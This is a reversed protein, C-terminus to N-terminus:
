PHEPAPQPALSDDADPPSFPDVESLPTPVVDDVDPTALGAPAGTDLARRWRETLLAVVFPVALAVFMVPGTDTARLALSVLGACVASALMLAARYIGVGWSARAPLSIVVIANSVPFLMATVCVFPAVAWLGLEGPMLVVATGLAVVTALLLVATRAGGIRDVGWGSVFKGGVSALRGAGVLGTVLALGTGRDVFHQPTLGIVVYHTTGAAVGTVLAMRYGPHRLYNRAERLLGDPRPGDAEVLHPTAAAFGLALAATVLFVARWLDIGVNSSFAAVALGLSYALGYTAIARGRSEIYMRGVMALGPGFFLGVGLGSLAQGVFLLHIGNSVGSVAAGTALLVASLRIAQRDGWSSGVWGGGVNAVGICLTLVAILAAQDSVDLGLDERILPFLPSIFTESAAALLYVVFLYSFALRRGPPSAGTSTM